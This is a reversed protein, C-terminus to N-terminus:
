ALDLHTEPEVSNTRHSIAARITFFTITMMMPTMMLLMMLFM